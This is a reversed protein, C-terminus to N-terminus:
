PRVELELIPLHAHELEVEFRGAIDARFALRTVSGASLDRFLDYGHVHVEDAADARVVLEVRRGRRVTVSRAGGVVRGQRVVIRITVAAPMSRRPPRPRRTPGRTVTGDRPVSRPAETTDVTRDDTGSPRLLLFLVAGLVVTGAAVAIKMTRGM